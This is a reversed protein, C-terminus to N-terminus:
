SALLTSRLPASLGEVDEASEAALALQAVTVASAHDLARVWGRVRGVRSSGVSLEVVGLGVLLPMAVPDSAAEGCVAVSIGSSRAARCVGDVLRLVAPHHAPKAGPQSRDLGLQLATLDNTGISLFDVEAVIQDALAAAGPVEIMAGLLPLGVGAAAATEVLAERVCRLQRPEVVMPVLVRLDTRQGAALVAALQDRLAAPHRLLLEIGRPGAGSLFPPTKDGGFDLLRITAPRGALPALIPELFLRHDLVTPWGSRDLFSLETRLLGVGEAGAALASEVEMPSSVNALVGIPVGDRTVAPLASTATALQSARHRAASAARAAELRPGGPDALIWGADGDVVLEGGEPVDVLGEGVGVVMPIGLSRAVIAAHGTAGGDALAIASIAIGLEAVDAPGLDRAVIVGQAAMSAVGDRGGSALRAARHGLSRVDSARAALLEDALSELQTAIEETAALIAAPARLGRDGVAGDVAALLAPDSAMLVGTEIIEADAEGLGAALGALEAAATALAATAQAIAASRESPPLPSTDVSAAGTWHRAPGAALGPSAPVGTFQREASM